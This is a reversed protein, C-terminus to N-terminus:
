ERGSADIKQWGMCTLPNNPVNKLFSREFRHGVRSVIPIIAADKRVLIDEAKRLLEIRKDVDTEVQAAEIAANFDPNNWGTKYTGSDPWATELFNSPDNFDAGWALIALDYDQGELRNMFQNWEHLNIEVNVGLKDGLVQQVYEAGTRAKQDSGSVVYNITVTSPDNGLGSEEMGEIFLAKPDTVENILDTVPGKGETNFEKGQCSIAIPVFTTAALGVGDRTADILEQRDFSASIARRIKANSVAKSDVNFIMYVVDPRPVVTHNYDPNDLFQAQWKPDTVSAMDIEGAMLANYITNTDTLIKVSIKDLKINKANWYTDNKIFNMESNMVWGTLIFPGCMPTTEPSTSYTDQYKEVWDKRQPFYTRQMVISLFYATPTHLKLVLTKDDPTSVGLEEVPLEGKVVKTGNVLPYIFNAYVCATEPMASRRVGYAYNQSTVKEGDHWMNDRIHFTYTLQDESIEWSEAGAPVIKTEGSEDEDLRILPEIVNLLVDNGYLDSGKSPDFTNPQSMFVNLYTDEKKEAVNNSTDKSDKNTSDSEGCGVILMILVILISISLFKKKM